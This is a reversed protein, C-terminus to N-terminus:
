ADPAVDAGRVREELWWALPFGFAWALGIFALSSARDGQIVVAGMREAGLYSVPAGVLAFVVRVVPYAGLWRMSSRFTAGFAVWLAVIWAPALAAPWALAASSSWPEAVPAFGPNAYEIWGAARQLSDVGCGVVGVLALAALARMRRGREACVLAFVIGAAVGIWSAGRAAGLVCAFWVAQFGVFNAFAKM